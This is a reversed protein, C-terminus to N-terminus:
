PKWKGLVVVYEGRIKGARPCLKGELLVPCDGFIASILQGVGVLAASLYPVSRRWAEEDMKVRCGIHKGPVM